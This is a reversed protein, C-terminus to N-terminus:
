FGFGFGATFAMGQNHVPDGNPQPDKPIDTAGIHYAADLNLWIADSLRFNIGAGALAGFDTGKFNDTVTTTGESVTTSNETSSILESKNKASLLFALSPGAFIKPRVAHEQKCFFYTLPVNLRLYNLDAKYQFRLEDNGDTVQYVYRAGERSYLLDVGVGFHEIFSYMLFGGATLGSKAKLDELNTLTSVNVGVKPGVTLTQSRVTICAAVFLM